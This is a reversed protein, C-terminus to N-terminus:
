RGFRRHKSDTSSLLAKIRDYKKIIAENEKVNRKILASKDLFNGNIFRATPERYAGLNLNENERRLIAAEMDGIFRSLERMFVEVDRKVVAFYENYANTYDINYSINGKNDIVCETNTFIYLMLDPNKEAYKGVWEKITTQNGPKNVLADMEHLLTIDRRGTMVGCFRRFLAAMEVNELGPIEDIKRAIDEAINRNDAIRMISDRTFGTAMAPIFAGTRFREFVSMGIMNEIEMGNEAKEVFCTHKRLDSLITFKSSITADAFMKTIKEDFYGIFGKVFLAYEDNKELHSDDYYSDVTRILRELASFLRGSKDCAQVYKWILRDYTESTQPNSSENRLNDSYLYALRCFTDNMLPSNMFEDTLLKDALVTNGNAASYVLIYSWIRSAKVKDEDGFSDYHKDVIRFIEIDPSYRGKRCKELEKEWFGNIRSLFEAKNDVISYFNYFSSLTRCATETTIEDEASGSLFTWMFYIDNIYSTDYRQIDDLKPQIDNCCDNFGTCDYALINSMVTRILSRYEKVAGSDFGSVFPKEGGLVFCYASNIFERTLDIGNVFYVLVDEIAYTDTVYTMFGLKKKYEKPFAPIIIDMLVVANFSAERAGGPLSVYISFGNECALFVALIFQAFLDSNFYRMIFDANFKREKCSIFSYKVEPLHSTSPRKFSDAASNMFMAPNVPCLHENLLTETEEESFVLSHAISSNRGVYDYEFSVASQVFCQKYPKYYHCFKIPHEDGGAFSYNNYNSLEDDSMINYFGDTVALTKYGAGSSGGTASGFLHQYAM